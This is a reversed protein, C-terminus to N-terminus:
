ELGEVPPIFAPIVAITHRTVQAAWESDGTTFSPDFLRLDLALNTVYIVNGRRALTSPFLLGNPKGDHGVGNFDGLKAIHRGNSDLVVLENAQNAAVWV